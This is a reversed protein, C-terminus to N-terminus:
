NCRLKEPNIQFQINIMKRKGPLEQADLIFGEAQLEEITRWLIQNNRSINGSLLNLNKFLYQRSIILYRGDTLTDWRMRNALYILLKTKYDYKANCGQKQKIDISNSFLVCDGTREPGDFFELAVTYADALEYTYDAAKALDFDRPLNDIEYDRIRIISKVIVKAGRTNGKKLSQAFVLETRHLAVLDQNLQSRSRATITGKQTRTYGLSDLLENARFYVLPGNGQERAKKYLFLVIAIQRPNLFTLLAMFLRQIRRDQIKELGKSIGEDTCAKIDLNAYQAKIEEWQESTLDELRVRRTLAVESKDEPDAQVRTELFYGDADVQFIPLQVDPNRITAAARPLIM